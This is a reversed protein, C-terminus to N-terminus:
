NKEFYVLFTNTLTLGLASAVAVGGVQKYFKGNFVFYSEKTALSLLKKFETKLLGEVRVTNDFLANACIDITEEHYVM